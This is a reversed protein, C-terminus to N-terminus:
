GIRACNEPPANVALGNIWNRHGDYGVMVSAVLENEVFGVM